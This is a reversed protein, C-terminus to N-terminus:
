ARASSASENASHDGGTPCLCTRGGGSMAVRLGRRSQAWWCRCKPKPPTWCAQESCILCRLMAKEKCIQTALSDRCLPGIHQEAQTMSRVGCLIKCRRWNAQFTSARADFHMRPNLIRQFVLEESRTAHNRRARVPMSDLATRAGVQHQEAPGALTRSVAGAVAETANTTVSPEKASRNCQAENSSARREPKSKRAFTTPSAFRPRFRVAGFCDEGVNFPLTQEETCPAFILTIEDSFTYACIAQFERLMDEMTKRM